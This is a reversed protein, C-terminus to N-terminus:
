GDVAGERVIRDRKQPKEAELSPFSRSRDRSYVPLGIGDRESLLEEKKRGFGARHKAVWESEEVLRKLRGRERELTVARAASQRRTERRLTLFRRLDPHNRVHAELGGTLPKDHADKWLVDRCPQCVHLQHHEGKTGRCSECRESRIDPMTDHCVPCKPPPLAEMHDPSVEVEMNM